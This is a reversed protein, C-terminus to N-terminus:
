RRGPQDERGIAEALLIAVEDGVDVFLDRAVRLEAPQDASQLLAVVRIHLVRLQTGRQGVAVALKRAGVLDGRFELVEQGEATVAVLLVPAALASRVGGRPDCGTPPGSEM